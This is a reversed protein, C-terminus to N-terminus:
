RAPAIERKNWVMIILEVVRTDPGNAPVPAVSAM